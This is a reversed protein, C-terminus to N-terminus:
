PQANRDLLARILKRAKRLDREKAAVAQPPIEAVRDALDSVGRSLSKIFANLADRPKVHRAKPKPLYKAVVAKPPQGSAIRKALQQQVKRDLLAVKGAMVLSLQNGELAHQIELPAALVQLYRSLNEENRGNLLSGRAKGNELELLWVAIRAKALPTLHRRHQNDELFEREITAADAHELDYRVLVKHFEKGNLQIARVRQHGKLITGDVLVEINQRLGNRQIDDALARLEHDPLDGFTQAQLPHPKLSALKRHELDASMIVTKEKCLSKM